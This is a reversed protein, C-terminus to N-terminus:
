YGQHTTKLSIGGAVMVSSKKMKDEELKKRGMLITNRTETWQGEVVGLLLRGPHSVRQGFPPCPPQFPDKNATVADQSEWLVENIKGLLLKKKKM